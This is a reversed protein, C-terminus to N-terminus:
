KGHFIKYCENLGNCLNNSTIIYTRWVNNCSTHPTTALVFSNWVRWAMGILPTLVLFGGWAFQYSKIWATWMVLFIVDMHLRINSINHFVLEYLQCNDLSVLNVSLMHWKRWWRTSWIIQFILIDLKLLSQLISGWHIDYTWFPGMKYEFGISQKRSHVLWSWIYCICLMSFEFM